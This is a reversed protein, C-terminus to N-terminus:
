RPLRTILVPPHITGNPGKIKVAFVVVVSRGGRNSIRDVKAEHVTGAITSRKGTRVEIPKGIAAEIMRAGKARLQTDVAALDVRPNSVSPRTLEGLPDAMFRQMFAEPDAFFDAAVNPRTRTRM